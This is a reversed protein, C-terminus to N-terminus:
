TNEYSTDELLLLDHELRDVADALAWYDRDTLDDDMQARYLLVHLEDPTVAEELKRRYAEATM